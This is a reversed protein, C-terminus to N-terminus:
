AGMCQFDTELQWCNLLYSPIEEGSEPPMNKHSYKHKMYVHEELFVLRDSCKKTGKKLELSIKNHRLRCLSFDMWM